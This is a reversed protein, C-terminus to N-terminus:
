NIKGQLRWSIKSMFFPWSYKNKIRLHGKKGQPLIHWWIKLIKCYHKYFHQQVTNTSFSIFIFLLLSSSGALRSWCPSGRRRRQVAATGPINGTWISGTSCTSGCSASPQSSSSPAARPRPPCPSSDKPTWLFSRSAQQWWTVLTVKCPHLFAASVSAM